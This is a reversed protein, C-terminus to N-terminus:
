QAKIFVKNTYIYIDGKHHATISTNNSNSDFTGNLTAIDLNDPVIIQISDSCDSFAPLGIKNISEPLVIKELKDCNFFAYDEIIKLSSNMTVTKLNKCRYFAKEKIESVSDPITVSTMEENKQFASSCIIKVGDPIIVDGNATFGDVLIDNVVVLSSKERNAQLWPTNEFADEGTVIVSEPINIEKLSKCESFVGNGIQVVSNPIDIKELSPCNSFVFSDLSNLNEPLTVSTLNDCFSFAGANITRVEDHFEVSTLNDCNKFAWGGIHRVNKPISYNGDVNTAKLLIDGVIVIDNEACLKDFWPTNEFCDYDIYISDAGETLTVSELKSCGSFSGGMITKVSSPIVVSKVTNNNKFAIMYIEKVPYGGIESPIVINEESGTYQLLKVYIEDGQSMVAYTYGDDTQQHEEITIIEAATDACETNGNCGSLIFLVAMCISILIKKM